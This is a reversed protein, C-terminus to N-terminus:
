QCVRRVIQLLTFIVYEVVVYIRKQMVKCFILSIHMHLSLLLCVDQYFKFFFCRLGVNCNIDLTMRIM